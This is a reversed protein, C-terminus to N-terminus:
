TFGLGKPISSALLETSGSAVGVESGAKPFHHGIGMSDLLLCRRGPVELIILNEVLASPTNMKAEAISTDVNTTLPQTLEAAAPKQGSNM